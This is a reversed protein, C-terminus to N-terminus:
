IQWKRGQGIDLKNIWFLLINATKFNLVSRSRTFPHGSRNKRLVGWVLEPPPRQPQRRRGIAEATRGADPQAGAAAAPAIQEPDAAQRNGGQRRGGWRDARPRPPRLPWRRLRGSGTRRGAGGLVRDATRHGDDATVVVSEDANNTDISLRLARTNHVSPRESKYQCSLSEQLPAHRSTCASRMSRAPPLRKTKKPKEVMHYVKLRSKTIM